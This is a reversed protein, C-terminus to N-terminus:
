NIEVNLCNQNCVFDSYSYAFFSLFGNLAHAFSRTPDFYFIDINERIWERNKLVLTIKYKCANKDSM